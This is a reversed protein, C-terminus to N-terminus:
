QTVFLGVIEVSVLLSCKIIGGTATPRHCRQEPAQSPSAKGDTWPANKRHQHCILPFSAQARLRM